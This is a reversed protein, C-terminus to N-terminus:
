QNLDLDNIGQVSDKADMGSGAEGGFKGQPKELKPESSGPKCAAFTVVLACIACLSVIKRFM